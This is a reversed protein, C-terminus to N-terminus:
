KKPYLEVNLIVVDGHKMKIKRRQTIHGKMFILVDFVGTGVELNFKGTKKKAKAKIKQAPININAGLPRGTVSRITGKLTGYTKGEIPKLKITVPIIPSKTILVAQTKEHYGDRKVVIKAQGPDATCTLFKGNKKDTMFITTEKGTVTVQADGLPEGTDAHLVKGDIRGTREVPTPVMVEVIKEKIVEKIVEKGGGEPIAGFNYGLGFIVNYPPTKVEQDGSDVGMLGVDCAVILHFTHVSLPFARLGITRWHPSTGNGMALATGYELFPAVPGLQYTIGLQALFQNNPNIGATFFQSESLPYNFIKKTNDFYYGLNLSILMAEIPIFDLTALIRTSVATDALQSFEQGSPIMVQLALGTSFWDMLGLGYRVGIFPDGFSQIESPIYQDSASGENFNMIMGFGVNIEM